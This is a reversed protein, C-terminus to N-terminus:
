KRRAAQADRIVILALQIAQLIKDILTARIM